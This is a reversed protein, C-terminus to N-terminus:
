ILKYFYRQERQEVPINKEPRLPLPYEGVFRLTKAFEGLQAAAERDAWPGPMPFDRDNVNSAFAAGYTREAAQAAGNKQTHAENSRYRIFVGKGDTVEAAITFPWGESTFATDLKASNLKWNGPVCSHLLTRGTTQDIIELPGRPTQAQERKMYKAGCYMCTFEAADAMIQLVGGCSPCKLEIFDSNQESM